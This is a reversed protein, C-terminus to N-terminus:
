QGAGDAVGAPQETTETLQQDADAEATANKAQVTRRNTRKGTTKRRRKTKKAVTPKALEDAEEAAKRAAAIGPDADVVSKALAAAEQTDLGEDRALQEAHAYVVHQAQIVENDLVSQQFPTPWHPEDLPHKWGRNAQYWEIPSNRPPVNTNHELSAWLTSKAFAPKGDPGICTRWNGTWMEVAKYVTTGGQEPRRSDMPSGVPKFRWLKGLRDVLFRGTKLPKWFVSMPQGKSNRGTMAGRDINLQDRIEQVQQRESPMLDYFDVDSLTAM